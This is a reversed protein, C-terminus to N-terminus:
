VPRAVTASSLGANGAESDLNRRIEPIGEGSKASIMGMSWEGWKSSHGSAERLDAKHSYDKGCQVMVGIFEWM